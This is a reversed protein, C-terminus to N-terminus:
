NGGTVGGAIYQAGQEASLGEALIELTEVRVALGEEGGGDDGEVRGPLINDGDHYGDMRVDGDAGQGAGAERMRGGLHDASEERVEMDQGRIARVFAEFERPMEMSAEHFGGFMELASELEGCVVFGQLLMLKIQESCCGHM